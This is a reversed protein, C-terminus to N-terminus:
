DRKILIKLFPEEQDFAKLSYLFTEGWVDLKTQPSLLLYDCYVSDSLLLFFICM